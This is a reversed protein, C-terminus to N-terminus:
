NAIRTFKGFEFSIIDIFWWKLLFDNGKALFDITRVPISHMPLASNWIMTKTPELDTWV